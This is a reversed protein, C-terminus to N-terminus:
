LNAGYRSPPFKVSWRVGMLSDEVAVVPLSNLKELEAELAALYNNLEEPSVEAPDFRSSNGAARKKETHTKEKGPELKVPVVDKQVPKTDVPVPSKNDITM